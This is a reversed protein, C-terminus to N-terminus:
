YHISSASNLYMPKLSVTKMNNSSESCFLTPISKWTAVDCPLEPGLSKAQSKQSELKHM